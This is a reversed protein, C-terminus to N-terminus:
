QGDLAIDDGDPAAARRGALFAVFHDNVLARVALEGPLQEQTVVEVGAPHRGVQAVTNQPQGDRDALLALGAPDREARRAVLLRGLDGGGRASGASWSPM